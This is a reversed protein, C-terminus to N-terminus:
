PRLTAYSREFSDGCVDDPEISEDVIIPVGSPDFTRDWGKELRL